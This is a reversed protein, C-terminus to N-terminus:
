EHLSEVDKILDNTLDYGGHAAEVNVFVISFGRDKAIRNAERKIQDIIEANLADRRKQLADLQKAASGTAGVDAGHLAAFQRDLDSKVANYNGVTKLADAQFQATFQQHIKAIKEKVGAPLNSPLAPPGLSRLQAGVENRRQAIKARTQGAIAGVQSRVAQATQASLQTRYARLADADARRQASIASAEKADIANLQSTLQKRTAEDLALNSLRTKIALRQAADEQTLKLSLDTENQQLQEAKARYKQNAQEDLQRAIANSAATDQAVVSQQYAQFDANAAAAAQRSQGASTASMQGAVATGGGSVGAAALAADVAQRERGAYDQQKAALIKNARNQADRLERNLAATERAIQSASLPVRPAAAALDIAAIADNIQSLQSYLPHHKIVDDLRVYGTGRVASSHVDVGCGSVFTAIASAALSAVLATAKSRFSM